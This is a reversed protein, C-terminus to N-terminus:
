AAFTLHLTHHHIFAFQLHPPTFRDRNRGLSKSSRRKSMYGKTALVISILDQQLQQLVQYSDQQQQEIVSDLASIFVSVLVCPTVQFAYDYKQNAPSTRISKFMAASRYLQQYPNKEAAVTSRIAAAPSDLKSMYLKYSTTETTQLM